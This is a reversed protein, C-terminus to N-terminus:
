GITTAGTSYIEGAWDEVAKEFQEDTDFDERVTPPHGLHCYRFDRKAQLTTAISDVSRCHVYKGGDEDKVLEYRDFFREKDDESVSGYDKFRVIHGHNGLWYSPTIECCHTVVSADYSYVGLIMQIFPADEENISFNHTEDLAVFHIDPQIKRESELELEAVPM